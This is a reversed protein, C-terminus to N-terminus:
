YLIVSKNIVEDGSPSTVKLLYTGSPLIEGPLDTWIISNSGDKLPLVSNRVLRGTLDFAQILCDGERDLAINLSQRSSAPNPSNSARLQFSETHSFDDASQSEYDLSPLVLTDDKHLTIAITGTESFGYQNGSDPQERWSTLVYLSTGHQITRIDYAWYNFLSGDPGMGFLKYSHDDLSTFEEKGGNPAWPVLFESFDITTLGDSGNGAYLHIYDPTGNYGCVDLGFVTAPTDTHNPLTQGCGAGHWSTWDLPRTDNDWQFVFLPNDADTVDFVMIGMALNAFFLLKSDNNPGKNCELVSARHVDGLEEFNSSQSSGWGGQQAAIRSVVPLTAGPSGSYDWITVGCNHNTMYAHDNAEDFYFSEYPRGPTSNNNHAFFLGPVELATNGEFRNYTQNFSSICVIDSGYGSVTVLYDGNEPNKRCHYVEEPTYPIDTMIFGNNNTVLEHDADRSELYVIMLNGNEPPNSGGSNDECEVIPVVLCWQDTGDIPLQMFSPDFTKYAFRDNNDPFTIIEADCIRPGGFDIEFLAISSNGLSVAGMPLKNALTSDPRRFNVTELALQPGYYLPKSAFYLDDQIDLFDANSSSLL